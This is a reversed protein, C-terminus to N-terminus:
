NKPPRVVFRLRTAENAASAPEPAVVIEYTGPTLRASDAFVRVFGETDAHLSDVVGVTTPTGAAPVSNLTARYTAQEPRNEPLVWFALAARTAPLAIQLTTNKADRSTVFRYTGLINLSAGSPDRLAAPSAGLIPAATHIRGLWLSAGVALIALSAAIGLIVRRREFPQAQALTELEGGERLTALGEQFRVTKELEQVIDPQQSYLTEFELTESVSLQGALYRAIRDPDATSRGM